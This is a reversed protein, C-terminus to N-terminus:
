EDGLRHRLEIALARAARRSLHLFRAGEFMEAAEREPSTKLWACLNKIDERQLPSLLDAMTTAEHASHSM